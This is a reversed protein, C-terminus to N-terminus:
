IGTYITGNMYILLVLYFRVYALVRPVSLCYQDIIIGMKLASSSCLVFSNIMKKLFPILIASKLEAIVTNCVSTIVRSAPRPTHPVM